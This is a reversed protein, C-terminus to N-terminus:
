PFSLDLLLFTFEIEGEGRLSRLPPRPTPWNEVYLEGLERDRIILLNEANKEEAAKIFNFSETTVTEGDIIMRDQPWVVRM